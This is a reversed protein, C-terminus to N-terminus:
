ALVKEAPATRLNSGKIVLTTAGWAVGAGIMM